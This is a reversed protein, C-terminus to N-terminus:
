VDIRTNKCFITTNALTVYYTIENGVWYLHGSRYCQCILLIMQLPVYGHSYQVFQPLFTLFFIAVKPNLINMTLGRLLLSRQSKPEAVNLQIPNKRYKIAKYALYFLYLAGAWKFISFATASTTINISLGLAAALTHVVNGLSLGVATYIGAKRGNTM